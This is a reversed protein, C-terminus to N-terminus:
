WIEHAAGEPLDVDHEEWVYPTKRETWAIAAWCLGGLLLMGACALEEGSGQGWHLLAYLLTMLGTLATGAGALLAFLPMREHCITFAYLTMERKAFIHSAVRFCGLVLLPVTLMGPAAVYPSYNSGVDRLLAAAFLACGLVALLAFLCKHGVWQRSSVDASYWPATYFRLIKFKGGPQEQRVETWGAFFSHYGSSHRFGTEAADDGGPSKRGRVGYIDNSAGGTNPHFISM